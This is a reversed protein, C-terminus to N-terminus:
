PRQPPAPRTLGTAPKWGNIYATLNKDLDDWGPEFVEM